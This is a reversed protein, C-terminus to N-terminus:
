MRACIRSNLTYRHAPRMSRSAARTRWRVRTPGTAMVTGVQDSAAQAIEKLAVAECSQTDQRLARQVREIEIARQRSDDVEGHVGARRLPQLLQQRPERPLRRRRDHGSTSQTIDCGPDLYWPSDQHAVVAGLADLKCPVFDGGRMRGAGHPM